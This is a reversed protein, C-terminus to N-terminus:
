IKRNKIFCLFINLILNFEVKDLYEIKQFFKSKFNEFNKIKEQSM